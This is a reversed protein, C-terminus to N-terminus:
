RDIKLSRLLLSTEDVASFVQKETGSIIQSIYEGATRYFEDEYHAIHAGGFVFSDSSYFHKSIDIVYCGTVAAFREECLSIFKKKLEFMADDELMALRNDLTIYESKPEAKILIINEGYHEKIFAAFRTMADFCYKMGRKEFLYSQRCESKISKYFDMRMIIDDVEFLAGKYEAVKSILDFFDLVIWRASSNEIDSVGSRNIANALTRKRWANGSFADTGEPLELEVRPEFALIAPQKFIYQGVFGSSMNASERSVCSGWIDLTKMQISRIYHKQQPKGRLLFMLEVSKANVAAGTEKALLRIMTKLINFNERFAMEYFDYGRSLDGERLAQIIEAARIIEAADAEGAFFEGVQSLEASGSQKLRILQESHKATFEASTNAIILDTASEMDLLWKQFSRATMSDYYKVVRSLWIDAALMDVCRRGKDEAIACAARYADLYYGSEFGDESSDAKRFYHRSLDVVAPNVISIFWEEMQQILRNTREKPSSARLQANNAGHEGFATRFLIIRANSALLIEAYRKISAKWFEEGYPPAVRTLQAAHEKYFASKRFMKRATFCCPPESGNIMYCAVSAATYFDVAVFDPKTKELYEGLKKSIDLNVRASANEEPEFGKECGLSIQSLRMAVKDVRFANGASFIENLLPSGSLLVRPANRQASMAKGLSQATIAACESSQASYPKKCPYVRASNNAFECICPTYSLKVCVGGKDRFLRARVAASGLTGCAVSPVLRGLSYACPVKRGDSTEIVSVRQVANPHAGIILNAGSNAMFRAQATQKKTPTISDWAGWHAIAVVFEAGKALAKNVLEVFYDQSYQPLANELAMDDAAAAAMTVAIFAIKIGKITIIVPNDGFTGINRMGCREIGQATAKLGKFGADRTHCAATVLAGFGAGSLANLLTSPANMNLEGNELFKQECAFPASDCCSSELVGVSLDASSMLERVAGYTESFDFQRAKAAKQQAACCTIGGAFLIDACAGGSEFARSVEVSTAFTQGDSKSTIIIKASGKARATVLGNADVAAINPATSEFRVPMATNGCEWELQASEGADLCIVEQAILKESIPVASVSESPASQVKGASDGFACVYATYECGNKLGRLAAVCGSTTRTKIITDPCDALALYVRYREAGQVAKWRVVVCKNGGKASIGRPASIEEM